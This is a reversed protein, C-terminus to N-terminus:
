SAKQSVFLWDWPYPSQMWRPPNDFETNWPYELKHMDKIKMNRRELLAILEEKLFHKTPVDSIVAIGERLRPENPKKYVPVGSRVAAHPKMGDQLNWEILRFDTLLASELSPVVLVLHSGQQLHNIITDLIRNRLIISPTLLTNVCLAFDAKPLKNKPNSLDITLFSINDLHSSVSKAQSICIPSLDVALVKKFGASLYPLFKGIGCGFDIASHGRSSFKKIQNVVLKKRDNKLVDFIEDNYNTAVKDWYVKNM